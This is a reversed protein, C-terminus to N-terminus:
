FVWHATVFEGTIPHTVFDLYSAPITTSPFEAVRTAGLYGHYKVKTTPNGGSWTLVYCLCGIQYSTSVGLGAPYNASLDQWSKMQGDFDTVTWTQTMSDIDMEGIEYRNAGITYWRTRKNPRDTYWKDGSYIDYRAGDPGFFIGVWAELQTSTQNRFLYLGQSIAVTPPTTSDGGSVAMEFTAMNAGDNRASVVALTGDPKAAFNYPNAAYSTGSATAVTAFTSVPSTNLKRAEVSFTAGDVFQMRLLWVTKDPARYLWTNQGIAFNHSPSYHRSHGALIAYDKLSKGEAISAADLTPPTPLGAFKVLQHRRTHDIQETYEVLKPRIGPWSAGGTPTFTGAETMVGHWPMGFGLLHDQPTLGQIM